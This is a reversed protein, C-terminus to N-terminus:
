PLIFLDLSYSSSSSFIFLHYHTASQISKQQLPWFGNHTWGLAIRIYAVPQPARQILPQALAISFKYPSLQLFLSGSQTQCPALSPRSSSLSVTFHVLLSFSTTGIFECSSFTFYKHPFTSLSPPPFHPPFRFHTM